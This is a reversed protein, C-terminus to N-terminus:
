VPGAVSQNSLDKNLHWLSGLMYNVSRPRWNQTGSAPSFTMEGFKISGDNLCYLDVRVYSFGFSLLEAVKLMEDFSVPKQVNERILPHDHVFRQKKWERDFFAMRLNTKRGTLFHVFKVKGDFCYFKYDNIDGGDNEMYEEAIIKPTIKGYHLEFGAKYAFNESMWKDFKIKCKKLDLSNKNEVIENWGSGHNCKLVFKNPLKSFDIEDFSDWVGLLPVLYSSGVKNKVWDRVLYKDALLTKLPNRDYFKSWQIKQTFTVPNNFDLCDGTRARYWKALEDRYQLENLSLYTREKAKMCSIEKKLHVKWLIYEFPYQFGYYAWRIFFCKILRIM